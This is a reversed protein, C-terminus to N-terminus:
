EIDHIIGADPLSLSASFFNLGGDLPMAVDGLLQEKFDRSTM